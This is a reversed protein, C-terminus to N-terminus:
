LLLLHKRGEQRLVTYVHIVKSRGSFLGQAEGYLSHLLCHCLLGSQVVADEFVHHLFRGVQNQHLMSRESNM